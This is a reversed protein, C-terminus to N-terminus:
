TLYYKKLSVAAVVTSEKVHMAEKADMAEKVDMAKEANMALQYSPKNAKRQIPKIADM